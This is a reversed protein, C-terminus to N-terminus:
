SRPRRSRLLYSPHMLGTPGYLEDHTRVFGLRELLARSAANDPHHGAFLADFGLADFAHAVVRGAAELAYGRRWCSSLVHVGLEPIRPHGERPRLGCSGVPSGDELLFVPWYQIGSADQSAIERRLRARIEREDFGGRSIFRTVVPDGWLARALPLDTERWTRFGLRESRLFYEGMAPRTGGPIM